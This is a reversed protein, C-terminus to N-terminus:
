EPLMETAQAAQALHEWFASLDLKDHDVLKEGLALWDGSPTKGKAIAELVRHVHEAKTGSIQKLLEACLFNVLKAVHMHFAEKERTHGQSAFCLLGILSNAIRVEVTNGPMGGDPELMGALAVLVDEMNTPETQAAPAAETRKGSQFLTGLTSQIEEPLSSLHAPAPPSGGRFLRKFMSTARPAAAAPAAMAAGTPISTLDLDMMAEEEVGTTVIMTKPIENAVDGARKVVAVLAMASSALEYERSVEALHERAREAEKRAAAGVGHARTIRSELDSLIRSGQLLKLTGGLETDSLPIRMELHEPGSVGQWGIRLRISETRGCEGMVMLPAGSFVYASPEPSIRAEVDDDAKAIVQKALPRGVSAFLELVPLDVRENPTLFRSTGGTHIALHGLFRDQSASGIGLCHIRVGAARARTLITETGFVQGDTIIFIDGPENGLLKAAEEVGQALETGGGASIGKLYKHGKEREQMTGLCLGPQFADANDSFAVIGFQDEADLGGLCAEIAKKAQAIPTGEMSGSRDLLIVVRRVSKELKGFETSPIVAAFRAKGGADMGGFVRAGAAKCKMDLVLDRNPVDGERSLLVRSKEASMTQVRVAHSPSSVEEIAGAMEADLCFGVQHLEKANAAFQPLILDGFEEGPLEMEFRGPAIEIGRAQRHYSPALTFPFRFRLSGDHLEVGALLELLVTVKEQPRINGVSLNIMGDGYQRVLASLSGAAIGAEYIETAEKTPRLESHVQFDAGTIRFRRLAADRPLAFSYIVELAKAEQSVFEHRVWLRAGMALVRGTLWLQQMGLAIPQRTQLTMPAFGAMTSM